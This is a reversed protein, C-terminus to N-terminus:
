LRGYDTYVLNYLIRDGPAAEECGRVQTHQSAASHKRRCPGDRSARTPRRTRGRERGHANLCYVMIANQAHMRNEAQQFVHSQASELVGDTTERGREAPLCHLFISSEKGTGM